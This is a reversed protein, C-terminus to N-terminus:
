NFEQSTGSLVSVEVVEEQGSKPSNEEVQKFLDGSHLWLEAASCRAEGTSGVEDTVSRGEDTPVETKSLPDVCWISSETTMLM